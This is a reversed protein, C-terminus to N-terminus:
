ATVSTLMRIMMRILSFGIGGLHLGWHDPKANQRGYDHHQDHSASQEAEVAAAAAANTGTYRRRQSLNLVDNHDDLLVAGHVIKKLIWHQDFSARVNGLASGVGFAIRNLQLLHIERGGEIGVVTVRCEV